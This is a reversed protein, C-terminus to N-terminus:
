YLFIRNFAIAFKHTENTSISKLRPKKKLIEEIEVLSDKETETLVLKQFIIVDKLVKFLFNDTLIRVQLLYKFFLSSQSLKLKEDIKINDDVKIKKKWVQYNEMVLKLEFKM